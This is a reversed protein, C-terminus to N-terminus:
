PTEVLTGAWLQLTCWAGYLVTGRLVAREALVSLGCYVLGISWLIAISEGVHFIMQPEGDRAFFNVFWIPALVLYPLQAWAALEWCRAQRGAGVRIPMWAIAWSLLAVVLVGAVYVATALPARLVFGLLTDVEGYIVKTVSAGLPLGLTALTMTVVVGLAQRYDPAADRIGAFFDVPRLLIQILPPPSPM